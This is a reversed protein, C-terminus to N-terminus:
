ECFRFTDFPNNKCRRIVGPLLVNIYYLVFGMADGLHDKQSAKQFASLSSLYTQTIEVIELRRIKKSCSMNFHCHMANPSLLKVHDKPKKQPASYRQKLYVLLLQEVDKHTSVIPQAEIVIQDAERFWGDMKNVYHHVLHGAKRDCKEFLCNEEFCRLNRLDTMNAFKVNINNIDSTDVDCVVMALNSYGVDIGIVRWTSKIM